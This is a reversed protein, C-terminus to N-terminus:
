TDREDGSGRSLARGGEVGVTAVVSATLELRSGGASGSASEVVDERQGRDFGKALGACFLFGTVGGETKRSALLSSVNHAEIYAVVGRIGENAHHGAAM